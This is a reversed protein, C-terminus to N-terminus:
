RFVHCCRSMTNWHAARESVIEARGLGARAQIPLYKKLSGNGRATKEKDAHADIANLETACLGLLVNAKVFCSLMATNNGM